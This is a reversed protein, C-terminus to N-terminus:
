LIFLDARSQITSPPPFTWVTGWFNDKFRRGRVWGSVISGLTAVGFIFQEVNKYV